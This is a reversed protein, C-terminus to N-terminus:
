GHLPAEEFPQRKLFISLPIAVAIILASVFFTDNVGMVFANTRVAADSMGALAGTKILDDIHFNTQYTQLSAFVGVALCSISQAIWNSLASGAGADKKDLAEMGLMTVPTNAVGSGTQRVMMLLIAYATSTSVSLHALAFTGAAALVFGGVTLIRPDMRNYLKGALLTCLAMALVSPLLIVGADLASLGQGEQLFLPLLFTGSYLGLLAISRTIVSLSFRASKLVSLNLMPSKVRLERIIFITLIIAGAILFSLIEASLWGRQAGESFGILLLVSAALCTVFGIIDLGAPPNLRYYPVKRIILFVLFIGLPINFLFIAQWSFIDILFGSITPGFAPALTATMAWLSMASAQKERPIVQYILAMTSSM